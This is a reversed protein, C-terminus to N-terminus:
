AITRKAYDSHVTQEKVNGKNLLIHKSTMEANTFGEIRRVVEDKIVDFLFSISKIKEMHKEILNTDMLNLQVRGTTTWSGQIATWQSPLGRSYILDELDSKISIMNTAHRVDVGKYVVWGLEELNGCVYGDHASSKKQNVFENQIDIIHCKLENNYQPVKFENRKYCVACHDCFKSQFLPCLNANSPLSADENRNGYGDHNRKSRRNQLSTSSNHSVNIYSFLHADMAYNFSSPSEEMKASAGCHLLLGHFLLVFNHESPFKLLTRTCYHVKADLPVHHSYNYVILNFSEFLNHMMSYHPWVGDHVVKPHDLPNYFREYYGLMSDKSGPKREEIGLLSTTTSKNKADFRKNRCRTDLGEKIYKSIEIDPVVVYEATDGNYRKVIVGPSLIICTHLKNCYDIKSSKSNLKMYDDIHRKTFVNDTFFRTENPKFCHQENHKKNAKRPLIALQQNNM